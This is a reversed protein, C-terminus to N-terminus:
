SLAIAGLGVVHIYVVVAMASRYTTDRLSWEGFHLAGSVLFTWPVMRAPTIAQLIRSNLLGGAISVASGAMVMLPFYSSSFESLFLADRAAKGAVQHALMVASVMM